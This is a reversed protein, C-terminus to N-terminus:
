RGMEKRRKRWFAKRAQRSRCEAYVCGAKQKKHMEAIERTWIAYWGCKSHCGPHRDVCDKCPATTM